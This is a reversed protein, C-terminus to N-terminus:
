RGRVLESVSFAAGELDALAAHRFPPADFPAAGVGGGLERAKAAAADADHVWFDLMWTPRDGTPAMVAVVDRPVPQELEAKIAAAAAEHASEIWVYTNWATVAAGRPPPFRRRRHGPRSPSM